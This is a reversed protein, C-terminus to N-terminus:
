QRTLTELIPMLHNCAKWGPDLVSSVAPASLNENATSAKPRDQFQKACAAAWFRIQVDELFVGRESTRASSLNTREFEIVSSARTFLEMSARDYYSKSMLKQSLFSGFLYFLYHPSTASFERAKAKGSQSTEGGDIVTVVRSPIDQQLALAQGVAGVLTFLIADQKSEPTFPKLADLGFPALYKGRFHALSTTSKRENEPILKQIFNAELEEQFQDHILSLFDECVVVLRSSPAGQNKLPVRTVWNICTIFDVTISHSLLYESALDNLFSRMTPEAAKTTVYGLHMLYARDQGKLAAPPQEIRLEFPAGRPTRDSNRVQDIQINLDDFQEETISWPAHAQLGGRSFGRRTVQYRDGLFSIEDYDGNKAMLYLSRLGEKNPVPGLYIPHGDPMFVSVAQFGKQNARMVLGMCRKIVACSSANPKVIVLADVMNGPDLNLWHVYVQHATRDPTNIKLEEAIATALQEHRAAPNVKDKGWASQTSDLLLVLLLLVAVDLRM